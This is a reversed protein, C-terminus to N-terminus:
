NSENAQAHGGPTILVEIFGGDGESNSSLAIGIVSKQDADAPTGKGASDSMIKEGRDCNAAMELRSTGATAVAAAEGSDPKNQLVGLNHYGEAAASTNYTVERDADSIKMARYQHSSLDAGAVLSLVNLPNSAVRGM